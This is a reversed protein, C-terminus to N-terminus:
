DYGIRFGELRRIPAPDDNAIQSNRTITMVFRSDTMLQLPIDATFESDNAPSGFNGGIVLCEFLETQMESVLQYYTCVIEVDAPFVELTDRIIAARTVREVGMPLPTEPTPLTLEQAGIEIFGATEALGFEIVEGMDDTLLSGLAVAWTGQLDPQAFLGNPPTVLTPSGIESIIAPTGFYLPVIDIPPQNDISFSASSRGNFTVTIEGVPTATPAPAPPNDCALICGGNAAQLLPAQTIWDAQGDVSAAPQLEGNFTLWVNEGARDFGFYAAALTGNQIDFFFGTRSDDAAFWAGSEPYSAFFVGIDEDDQAHLPLLPLASLILCGFKLLNQMSM